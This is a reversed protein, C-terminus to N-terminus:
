EDDAEISFSPRVYSGGWRGPHTTVTPEYSIGEPQPQYYERTRELTELLEPLGAEPIEQVMELCLDRLLGATATRTQTM